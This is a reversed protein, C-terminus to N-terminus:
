EGARPVVGTAAELELRWLDDWRERERIIRFTAGDVLVEAARRRSNYNSAMVFGYAGASRLVLLEGEHVVPLERGRAFFDGTECVPGVVDVVAREGRPAAVPEIGHWAGYLAPRIADNMGADVVVFRTEGNHKTLLCRMLLVGANGVLVRGPETMLRITRGGLTKRVADAYETPSPPVEDRYTIGLGGGIDIHGIAIGRAELRDVLALIRELAEVFPEARSLQSGIHCDVGVVEIHDLGAALVYTEEAQDWAIGFKSSRLGTAIYPHTEADVDPNVRLSVRAKKGLGEAIADIHRLEAESEVNFCGIGVELAFAIESWTKGVGSFVVKAPDGGVLLIRRLEGESVIDFGCGADAFIKLISLNSCSKVAFRLAHDIGHWAEQYVRIHRELTARSYVYTPTGVESAITHLDVDECFLRGDARREFHNM